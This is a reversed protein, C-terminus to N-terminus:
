GGPKDARVVYQDPLLDTDITPTLGGARLESAVQEPELKHEKNPGRDSSRKFDVIFTQGGPALAAALKRSYAERDPIHHWTNVILIRDVSGDDLLPDDLLALSVSVNDLGDRAARAKVHRVMNPAIDVAQVHGEPGVAKSLRPVFYGTGTGIDAVRMGPALAMADIVVDPKQYADREDNEFRKAWIEPDTDDFRHVLPAQPDGEHPAGHGHGSGHEHHDGHQPEGKPSATPEPQAAPSPPSTPTVEPCACAPLISLLSVALRKM